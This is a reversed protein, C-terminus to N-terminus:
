FRHEMIAQTLEQGYLTWPRLGAREIAEKGIIKVQEPKVLIEEIAGRLEETSGAKILWGNKKDTILDPGATRDTTIVPTGQSMAETIVMGFGEFLSPFLLVDHERMLKLVEKHPLSPIWKHKALAKNLAACDNAAKHGLVTLDVYSELGEVAAFVDAIGKRQSLGGVFLLKLKKRNSLNDYKRSEVPIPFGYPIIEVPALKGPFDKLTNATFTSAVFIRNAMKLEEDKRRLKAESDKFGTLTSAWEPWREQEIQLLKRASRWYGIPLDYLCQLQRKQAEKFSFFAGDEYAYVANIEKNEARGLRQAVGRDQNKYVADVSFIGTEHRTLSGAGLKLAAMRGVERWPSTSTFSSLSPEFSRRRLDAFPGVVSLKDLFGGPFTAMATHFENLMDAEMLGQLLARNFQNSTPHSIIVKM